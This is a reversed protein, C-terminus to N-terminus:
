VPRMGHDGSTSLFSADARLGDKTSLDCVPTVPLGGEGSYNRLLFLVVTTVELEAQSNVSQLKLAVLCRDASNLGM